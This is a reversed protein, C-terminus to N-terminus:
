SLILKLGTDLKKFKKIKLFKKIPKVNNKLVDIKKKNIIFSIKRKVNMISLLKLVLDKIVTFKGSGIFFIKNYKKKFFLKYFIKNLDDIYVFDIKSNCSHIEKIKGRKIKKILEPIAGKKNLTGGYVNSIRLIFFKKSNKIIYNECNIKSLQYKNLKIIKQKFKHHLHTSPFLLTFNYKNCIKVIKKLETLNSKEDKEKNIKFKLHLLHTYQLLSKHTINDKFDLFLLNKKELYKKVNSYIYGNKGTLLIKPNSM